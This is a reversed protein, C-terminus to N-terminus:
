NANGPFAGGLAAPVKLVTARRGIGVRVLDGANGHLRAKTSNGLLVPYLPNQDPLHIPNQPKQSLENVPIKKSKKVMKLLTQSEGYVYSVYRAQMM